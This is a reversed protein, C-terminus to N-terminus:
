ERGEHSPDFGRGAVWANLRRWGDYVGGIGAGGRVLTRFLAPERTMSEAALADMCETLATELCATWAAVSRTGAAGCDIPAGFRVMIEPRSENWFGYEIALPLIIAQPIRRAMHALGPRLRVPRQRADTFRGEATIWLISAPSALVREASTWFVPAAM